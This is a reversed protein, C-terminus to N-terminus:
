HAPAPEILGAHLAQLEAVTMGRMELFDAVAGGALRRAHDLSDQMLEARIYHQTQYFNDNESAADARAGGDRAIGGPPRLGLGANSRLYDTIIAEDTVGVAALALGIVLGTRDKGVACHVLAPLSDTHALVRVADTLRGGCAEILHLYLGVQLAPVPANGLIAVQPRRISPDGLEYPRRELEIDDRLDLVSRLGLARIAAMADADLTDPSPSRYLTGFRSRGGDATPLGGVDRFNSWGTIAATTDSV